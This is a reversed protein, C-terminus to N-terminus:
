PSRPGRSSLGVLRLNTDTGCHTQLSAVAGSPCVVGSWKAGDMLANETIASSLDAQRLDATSLNARTLNALRLDTRQLSALSLDIGAAEVFSMDARDLWAQSLNADRLDAFALNANRLDAGRLDLGRLDRESLQCGRLNAGPELRACRQEMQKTLLLKATAANKSPKQGSASAPFSFLVLSLALTTIIRRLAPPAVWPRINTASATQDIGNM